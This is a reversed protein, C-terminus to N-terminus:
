YSKKDKTEEYEGKEKKVPSMKFESDSDSEFKSTIFLLIPVSSSFMSIFKGGNIM